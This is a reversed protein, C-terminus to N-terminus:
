VLSLCAVRDKAVDLRPFAGHPAVEDEGLLRVVNTRDLEHAGDTRPPKRELMGSDLGEGSMDLKLGFGLAVEFGNGVPHGALEWRFAPELKM